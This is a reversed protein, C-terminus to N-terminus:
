RWGSGIFVIGMLVFGGALVQGGRVVAEMTRQDVLRGQAQVKAVEARVQERMTFIMVFNVAATLLGIIILM